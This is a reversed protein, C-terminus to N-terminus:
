LSRLVVEAANRGCIGHAGGGPPTAASCMYVGPIGTAYPNLALRPRFLIQRPSNAGAIIDGGRYSPNYAALQAPGRVHSAVVRERAKPAFREIQALIADTADGDYAHPVHGYAWVPHVDGRSRSPDALYQQCVLVFPRAPMRGQNIQREAAAIEQLSGGVHVTTARRAPEYEWPLGGEVALDLKFAAPGPRYRAYARAVRTPLRDAAIELVGSPTLDLVVADARPLEELSGIRRGTEIRGGGELVVGALADAIAQSGGRAVPWGRSHCACILAMGIASGFPQSLPAFSHAAVGGFLARSPEDGLARALLTAPAAAAAGFRALALPRRPLRLVPRMLSDWLEDFLRSPTGFVRRWSRGAAGLGAATADISRLMTAGGGGDLPHALDVDPWAWRLGHRELGLPALAPSGSSMPHIASCDDHILGPITLESSRAGGGVTEAAEIVTVGVGSSTLTAACSLGNPGAGVIVVESM